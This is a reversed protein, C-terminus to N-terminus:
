GVIENEATVVAIRHRLGVDPRVLDLADEEELPLRQWVPDHVVFMDPSSGSCSRRCCNM